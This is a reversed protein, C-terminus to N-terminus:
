LIHPFLLLLSQKLFCFFKLLSSPFHWTLKTRLLLNLPFVISSATASFFFPFYIGRKKNDGKQVLAGRMQGVEMAQNQAATVQAQSQAATVQAQSQAAIVQAQSQAATVQAQNQAVTIQAQSQAATIQALTTIQNQRATTQAQSQHTITNKHINQHLILLVLIHKQNIIRQLMITGQNVKCLMQIPQLV